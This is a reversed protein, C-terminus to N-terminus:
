YCCCGGVLIIYLLISIYCCCNVMWWWVIYMKKQEGDRVRKINNEIDRQKKNADVVNKNIAQWKKQAIEWENKASPVLSEAEEVQELIIKRVNLITEEEKVLKKKVIELGICKENLRHHKEKMNIIENNCQNILIDFMVNIEKNLLNKYNLLGKLNNVNDTSLLCFKSLTILESVKTIIELAEETTTIDMLQLKLGDLKIKDTKGRKQDVVWEEIRSRLSHNPTLDKTMVHGSLPSTTKDSVVEGDEGDKKTNFWNQIGSREYSHGDQAFVPDTMRLHTISCVMDAPCPPLSDDIIEISAM